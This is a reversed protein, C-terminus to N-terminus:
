TRRGDVMLYREENPDRPWSAYERQRRLIEDYQGAAAETRGSDLYRRALRKLRRMTAADSTVRSSLRPWRATISLRAPIWISPPGTGPRRRTPTLPELERKM